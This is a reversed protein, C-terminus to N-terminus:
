GEGAERLEARREEEVASETRDWEGWRATARDARTYLVLPSCTCACRRGEGKNEGEVAEAEIAPHLRQVTRHDSRNGKM